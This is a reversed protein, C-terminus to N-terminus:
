SLGSMRGVMWGDMRARGVHVTEREKDPCGRGGRECARRFKGKEALKVRIMMPRGFVMLGCSISFSLSRLLVNDSPRVVVEERGSDGEEKRGELAETLM